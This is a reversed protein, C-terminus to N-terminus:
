NNRDLDFRPNKDYFLPNRYKKQLRKCMKRDLFFSEEASMLVHNETDMFILQVFDDNKFIDITGFDGVFKIYKEDKKAQKYNYETVIRGVLGQYVKECLAYNEDVFSVSVM